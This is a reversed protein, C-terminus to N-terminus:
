EGKVLELEDASFYLISDGIEMNAEIFIENSKYIRLGYLNEKDLVEVIGECGTFWGGNLDKIIKVKDNIKFM